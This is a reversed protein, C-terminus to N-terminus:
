IREALIEALMVGGEWGHGSEEYSWWSSLIAHTLGLRILRQRDLGLEATLQDIRRFTLRRLRDREIHDWPNLLMQGIDYGPEGALGKPDIALWPQRHASLINFHHLDGHLLVLESPARRMEAYTEEAFDVLAGPFPGTGGDFTPRLRELSQGWDTVHPFPHAPPLTRWLRSMISSIITTAQEDDKLESLMHGPQIHELLLAGREVDAAYLQVMGEGQYLRLAECETKLERNPVGLKLVAGTGDACVVPAVFNYSLPVFHPLVRISWRTQVDAILDPLAHLWAEGRTEYLDVITQKFHEPLEMM